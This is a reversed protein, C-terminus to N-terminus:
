VVEPAFKSKTNVVWCGQINENNPDSKLVWNDGTPQHGELKTDILHKAAALLRNITDKDSQDIVIAAKYTPEADGRENSFKHPEYLHPYMLRGRVTIATPDKQTM